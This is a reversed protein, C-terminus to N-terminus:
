RAPALPRGAADGTIRAPDGFLHLSGHVGTVWLEAGRARV